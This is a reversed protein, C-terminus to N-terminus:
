NTKKEKKRKKRKKKQQKKIMRKAKSDGLEALRKLLPISLNSHLIRPDYNNEAWAQMNSCHVWFKTEAPIHIEEPEHEMSHDLHEALEDVSEINEFFYELEYLTKRLLVYKCQRFFEGGVYINTVGYELKLTIYDNVKFEENDPMLEMTIYKKVKPKEKKKLKENHLSIVFSQIYTLIKFIYDYKIIYYSKNGKRMSYILKMDTLMNLHKSITSQSKQLADEIEKSTREGSKLLELIEFRTQDALVKLFYVVKETLESM